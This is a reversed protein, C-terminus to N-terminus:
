GLESNIVQVRLQRGNLFLQGRGPPGGLLTRDIRQGFLQGDISTQPRLILGSQSRKCISATGRLDNALEDPLGTMLIRLQANSNLAEVLAADFASRIFRESDDIILLTPEEGISSIFATPNALVDADLFHV